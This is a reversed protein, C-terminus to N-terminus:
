LTNYLQEWHFSICFVTDIKEWLTKLTVCVASMLCNSHLPRVLYKYDLATSNTCDINATEPQQLCNTSEDFVERAKSGVSMATFTPSLTSEPVMPSRTVLSLCLVIIYDTTKTNVNKKIKGVSFQKNKLLFNLIIHQHKILWGVKPQSFSLVLLLFPHNQLHKRYEKQCCRLILMVKGGLYFM